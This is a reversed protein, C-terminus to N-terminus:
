CRSPHTRRSPLHALTTIDKNVSQRDLGARVHLAPLDRRFVTLPATGYYM